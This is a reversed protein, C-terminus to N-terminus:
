AVVKEVRNYVTDREVAEFGAREIMEIIEQKSMKVENNSEVSYSYTLEGGDTITGDLDNAGFHLATQATAKGLMVWYAEIHDFGAIMVRSVAITKLNDIM